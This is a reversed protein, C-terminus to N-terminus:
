ELGAVYKAYAGEDMLATFENKDKMRVKIFWGKGVPDTNVIAPDDNLAANVEVVEGAVPSYVESAAKVSEVTCAEAGREVQKGKAPLEVYVVDGLQKQAYDSIGITAIDGDVRVWEHDKSYRQESM